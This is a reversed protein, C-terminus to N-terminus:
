LLPFLADPLFGLVAGGYFFVVQMPKLPLCDVWPGILDGKLKSVGLAVKTRSNHGVSTHLGGVIFTVKEDFVMFKVLPPPPSRM